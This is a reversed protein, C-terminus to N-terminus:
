DPKGVKSRKKAHAVAIGNVEFRAGFLLKAVGVFARSPYNDRFYSAYAANFSEYLTLDTCFVQISVVDDMTMGAQEVIKKVEGMLERAEQEPTVGAALRPPSVTTGSIYLTDGVVVGSSIPLHREVAVKSRLFKRESQAAAATSLSLCVILAVHRM